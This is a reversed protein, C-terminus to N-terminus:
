AVRVSIPRGPDLMRNLVHVAVAVEIVRREDKRCRLGDGIVQRCRGIATEVQSRITYGSVKQWGIRGKEGIGQLPRDRQTPKTEATESPVATARPPVIVAADPHHNTVARYVSDQDYAGDGIFSAVSRAVQDLLPDVQSADGVDNTTLAPALIEGTQAPRRRCCAPPSVGGDFDFPENQLTLVTTSRTGHSIFATRSRRIAL